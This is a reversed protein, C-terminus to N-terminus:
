ARMDATGFVKTADALKAYKEFAIEKDPVTSLENLAVLDCINCGSVNNSETLKFYDFIWTHTGQFGFYLNLVTNEGSNFKIAVNSYGETLKLINQKLM